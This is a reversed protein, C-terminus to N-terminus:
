PQVQALGLGIGLGRGLGLGLDLGLGVRVGVWIRVWIRVRVRVRVRVGAGFGVRAAGGGVWRPEQAPPAHPRRRGRGLAGPVIRTAMTLMAM